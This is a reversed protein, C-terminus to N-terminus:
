LFLYQLLKLALVATVILLVVELIGIKSEDRM